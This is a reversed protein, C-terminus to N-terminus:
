TTQVSDLVLRLREAVARLDEVKPPSTTTHGAVMEDYSSRTLEFDAAGAETAAIALRLESPTLTVTLERPLWDTLTADVHARAGLEATDRHTVYLAVVRHHLRHAESAECVEAESTPPQEGFFSLDFTSSAGALLALQTGTLEFSLLRDQAAAQQLGGLLETVMGSWSHLDAGAAWLDGLEATLRKPSAELGSRLLADGATRYAVLCEELRAMIIGAAVQDPLLRGAIMAVHDALLDSNDETM